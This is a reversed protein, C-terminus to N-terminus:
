KSLVVQQYKELGEVYLKEIEASTLAQSYVSVDDIFGDFETTEPTSRHRGIEYDGSADSLTGPHAASIEVAGDLYAILNTGNYTGVIFHWKGVAMESSGRVAKQSGDVKVSFYVNSERSALYPLGQSVVMDFNDVTDHNVWAAITVETGGTLTLSSDAPINVYDDVGDFKMSFGEGDVTNSDWTPSSEITGNNGNGSGDSVTTGEGEDFGWSGVANLIRKLQTDLKQGGAIRGKERLGGVSVLVITSLLGIIAIVVLLEILTLGKKNM